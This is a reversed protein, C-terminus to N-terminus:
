WEGEGDVRSYRGEVKIRVHPKQSRPLNCFLGVWGGAEDLSAASDDGRPRQRGGSSEVASGLIWTAPLCDGGILSVPWRDVGSCCLRTDGAGDDDVDLLLPSFVFNEEGARRATMEEVGGALGLELLLWSVCGLWSQLGGDAAFRGSSV